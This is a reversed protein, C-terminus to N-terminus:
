KLTVSGTYYVYRGDEKIKILAMEKIPINQSANSTNQIVVRNDIETTPSLRMINLKEQLAGIQQNTYNRNQEFSVSNKRDYKEFEARVYFKLYIFSAVIHCLILCLILFIPINKRDM